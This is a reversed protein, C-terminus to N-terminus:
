RVSHRSTSLTTDRVVVLLGPWDTEAFRGIVHRVAHHIKHRNPQRLRVVLIGHHPDSRYETFGKDTTVLVREEAMALNWLYPDQLGQASTGRIDKVDHGNHHLGDVTMRPINEDVLIKM